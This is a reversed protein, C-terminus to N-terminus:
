NCGFQTDNLRDVKIRTKEKITHNIFFGVLSCLIPPMNPEWLSLQGTWDQGLGTLTNNLNTKQIMPCPRM